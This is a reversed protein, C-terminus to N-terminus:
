LIVIILGSLEAAFQWSVLPPPFLVFLLFVLLVRIERGRGRWMRPPTTRVDSIEHLAYNKLCSYHLSQVPDFAM